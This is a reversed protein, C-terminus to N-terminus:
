IQTSWGPSKVCRKRKTRRFALIWQFVFPNIQGVLATTFTSSLWQWSWGIWTRKRWATTVLRWLLPIFQCCIGREKTPPRPRLRSCLTVSSVLSIGLPLAWGLPVKSCSLELTLLDRRDNSLRWFSKKGIGSHSGLAIGPALNQEPGCVELGIKLSRRLPCFKMVSM